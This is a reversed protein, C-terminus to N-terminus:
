KDHRAKTPDPRSPEPQRTKHALVRSFRTPLFLTIVAQTLFMYLSEKNSFLPDPEGGILFGGMREWELGSLHCTDLVFDLSLFYVM